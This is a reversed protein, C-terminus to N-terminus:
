RMGVKFQLTVDFEENNDKTVHCTVQFSVPGPTFPNIMFQCDTQTFSLNSIVVGETASATVDIVNEIPIMLNYNVAEWTLGLVGDITEDGALLVWNPESAGSKGPTKVQYYLGTFVSPLVVDFDEDSTKRYVTNAAWTAPRFVIGFVRREQPDHIGAIKLPGKQLASYVSM